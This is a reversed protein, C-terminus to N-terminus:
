QIPLTDKLLDGGCSKRLRMIHRSSRKKKARNEREVMQGIGWAAAICPVVLATYIMNPILFEGYLKEVALKAFPINMVSTIGAIMYLLGNAKGVVNSALLTPLFSLSVGFLFCRYFSFFAFGLVQVNLNDSSVRILNYALALLNVTQFGGYIGYRTMVADAVPLALLSAPALM